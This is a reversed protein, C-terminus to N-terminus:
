LFFDIGYILVIYRLVKGISISLVSLVLNARTLGLIVSIGEGVVPLFCFFGMLAGNGRMFKQAKVLSEPNVHFWRELWELKGMRGLIYNLMSGIINGISGYVILWIPNLGAAWLALMVAESSIPFLSGALLASLFMGWYGYDILFNTIIDM